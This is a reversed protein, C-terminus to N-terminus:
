ETTQTRITNVTDKGFCFNKIKIFDLKDVIDKMFSVKTTPDLFDHSHGFDDLDEGIDDELFQITKHRINLDVIWKSNIKTFSILDTDLNM